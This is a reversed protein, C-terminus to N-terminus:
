SALAELEPKSLNERVLSMIRIATQRDTEGINRFADDHVSQSIARMREIMPRAKESLFVNVARRDDPDPRREVWGASVMRDVLRGVSIPQMELEDALQAQRAGNRRCLRALLIWQAQTLGLAQVQRNFNRRMLRAVDAAILGFVDPPNGTEPLQSSM